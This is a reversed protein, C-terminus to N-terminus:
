RIIREIAFPMEDPFRTSRPRLVIVDHLALNLHDPRGARSYTARAGDIKGPWIAITPRRRARAALFQLPAIHMDPWLLVDLDAIVTADACATDADDTSPPHTHDSLAHGLRVVAAGLDARFREVLAGADSPTAAAILVVRGRARDLEELLAFGATPWAAMADDAMAGGYVHILTAALSM